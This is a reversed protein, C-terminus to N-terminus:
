AQAEPQAVPTAQALIGILDDLSPASSLSQWRAPSTGALLQLRHGRGEVSLIKLGPNAATVKVASAATEEDVILWDVDQLQAAAPVSDTVRVVQLPRTSPTLSSNLTHQLLERFLRPRNALVIHVTSQNSMIKRM